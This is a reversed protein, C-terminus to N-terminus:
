TIKCCLFFTTIKNRRSYVLKMEPSVNTTKKLIHISNYLEKIFPFTNDSIIVIDESFDGFIFLQPHGNIQSKLSNPEAFSTMHIIYTMSELTFNGKIFYLSM